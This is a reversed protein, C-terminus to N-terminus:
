PLSHFQIIELAGKLLFWGPIGHRRDARADKAKGLFPMALPQAIEVWAISRSCCGGLWFSSAGHTPPSHMNLLNLNWLTSSCVSVQLCVGPNSSNQHTWASQVLLNRKQRSLSELSSTIKYLWLNEYIIGNGHLISKGPLIGGGGSLLLMFHVEEWFLSSCRLM